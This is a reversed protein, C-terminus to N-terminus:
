DSLVTLEIRQRPVGKPEVLPKAENYCGFALKFLFTEEIYGSSLSPDGNSDYQHNCISCEREQCIRVDGLM